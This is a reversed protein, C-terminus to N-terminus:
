ENGRVREGERESGRGARRRHSAVRLSPPPTENYNGYLSRQATAKGRKGGKRVVKESEDGVSRQQAQDSRRDTSVSIENREM